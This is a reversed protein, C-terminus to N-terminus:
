RTLESKAARQLRWKGLIDKKYFHLMGCRECKMIKSSKRVDIEYLELIYGCNKCKGSHLNPHSGILTGSLYKGTEAM